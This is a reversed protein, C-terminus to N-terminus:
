FNERVSSFPPGASLVVLLLSNAGEVQGCIASHAWDSGPGVCCNNVFFFFGVVFFGLLVFVLCVLGGCM